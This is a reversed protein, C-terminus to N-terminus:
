VGHIKHPPRTPEALYIYIKCHSIAIETRDQGDNNKTNKKLFFATAFNRILALASTRMGALFPQVAKSM